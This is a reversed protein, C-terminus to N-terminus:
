QGLLRMSIKCIGDRPAKFAYGISPRVLWGLRVLKMFDHLWTPCVIHTSELIAGAAYPSTSAFKHGDSVHM